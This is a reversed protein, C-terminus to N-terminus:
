YRRAFSARVFLRDGQAQRVLLPEGKSLSLTIPDTASGKCTFKHLWASPKNM